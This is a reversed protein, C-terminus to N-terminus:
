NLSINMVANHYNNLADMLNEENLKGNDNKIQNILVKMPSIWSMPFTNYDKGSEIVNLLHTMNTVSNHYGRYPSYYDPNAFYSLIDEQNSVYNAFELLAKKKDKDNQKKVALTLTVYYSSWSFSENNYSFSPLNNAYKLNEKFYDDVDETLYNMGSCTAYNEGSNLSYVNSVIKSNSLLQSLGKAITLGKESNLNDSNGDKSIITDLGNGYFAGFYDMPGFCLINKKNDYEETKNLISDWNTVENEKFLSGDYAFFPYVGIGIPFAPIEKNYTFAKLCHEDMNKAVIKKYKENLVEIQNNQIFEKLDAFSGFALDYNFGSNDIGEGGIVYSIDLNVNTKNEYQEEIIKLANRLNESEVFFSFSYSKNDANSCGCISVVM